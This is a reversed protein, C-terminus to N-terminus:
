LCGFGAVSLILGHFLQLRSRTAGSPKRAHHPARHSSTGLGMGVTLGRSVPPSDLVTSSYYVQHGSLYGTAMAFYSNLRFDRMAQHHRFNYHYTLLETIGVRWSNVEQGITVPLGVRLGDVM